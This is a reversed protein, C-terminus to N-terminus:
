NQFHCIFHNTFNRSPQCSIVAMVGSNDVKAGAALRHPDMVNDIGDVGEKLEIDDVLKPIDNDVLVLDQGPEGEHVADAGRKTEPNVCDLILSQVGVNLLKIMVRSCSAASSVNIVGRISMSPCYEPIIRVAVHGLQLTVMVVCGDDIHLRSEATNHVGMVPAELNVLLGLVNEPQIIIYSYDLSFTKTERKLMKLNFPLVVM